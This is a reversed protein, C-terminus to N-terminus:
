KATATGSQDARIQAMSMSRLAKRIVDIGFCHRAWSNKAPVYRLLVIGSRLYDISHRFMELRLVALAYGLLDNGIGLWEIGDCTKEM